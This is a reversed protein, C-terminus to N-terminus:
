WTLQTLEHSSKHKAPGGEQRQRGGQAGGNGDGDAAAAAGAGPVVPRAVDFYSPDYSVLFEPPTNSVQNSVISRSPRIDM